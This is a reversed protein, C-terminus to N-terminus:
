NKKYRYCTINNHFTIDFSSNELKYKASTQIVIIAVNKIATVRIVKTM